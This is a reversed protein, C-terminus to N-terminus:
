VAHRRSREVQGQQHAPLVEGSTVDLVTLGGGQFRDTDIGVLFDRDLIEGTTQATHGVVVSKGSFPRRLEGPKLPDWRLESSSLRNMPLDPDYNAHVFLHGETEFYPDCGRIFRIHETPIM